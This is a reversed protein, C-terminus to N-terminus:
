KAACHVPSLRHNLSTFQNVTCATTDKHKNFLWLRRRRRFCAPANRITRRGTGHRAHHGLGGFNAPGRAWGLMWGKESSYAQGLPRPAASVLTAGHQNRAIFTCCPPTAYHDLAGGQFPPMPSVGDLTRIEGGGGYCFRLCPISAIEANHGSSPSIRLGCAQRPRPPTASNELLFIDTVSAHRIRILVCREAEGM